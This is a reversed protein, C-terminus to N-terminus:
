NGDTGGHITTEQTLTFKHLVTKRIGNTLTVEIDFYYDDYYLNETDSSNFVCHMYEDDYTIGDDLNKVFLVDSDKDPEQRCTVIISEIDAKRPNNEDMFSILCKFSFTDGRVFKIM